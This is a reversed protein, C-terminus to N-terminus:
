VAPGVLCPSPAVKCCVEWCASHVETYSVLSALPRPQAQPPYPHSSAWHGRGLVDLPCLPMVIFQSFSFLSTQQYERTAQAFRLMVLRLIPM